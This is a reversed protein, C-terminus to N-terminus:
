RRPVRRVTGQEDISFLPGNWVDDLLVGTGSVMSPLTFPPVIAFADAQGPDVTYGMDALSTVTVISLPNAGNNLFGTMLEGKFVTERWHSNRTGPGGTGEVPVKNGVFVSGGIANFAAVAQSGTFFPDTTASGSLLGLSSWTSGFGIVHLMEHLIVFQLLGQNELNTLDAVDFQMVGIAPLNGTARVICPGAQGLIMGPGDIAAVEAFILLDDITENIAPQNNLCEGAPRNAPVNALDGVIVQELRNRANRFAQSQSPSMSGLFRLDITYASVATSTTATFTVSPLGAVTATLTNSGPSSGVNWQGVTAIGDSGTTAVAGFVSGGGSAVAFTVTIGSLPRGNVNSVQVSPDIPVPHGPQATQGNGAVIEIDAPDDPPDSGGGCAIALTLAPFLWCRSSRIM